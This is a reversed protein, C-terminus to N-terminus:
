DASGAYLSTTIICTTVPLMSEDAAASAPEVGLILQKGGMEDREHEHCATPM